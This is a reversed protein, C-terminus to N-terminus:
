QESIVLLCTQSDDETWAFLPTGQEADYFVQELPQLEKGEGLSAANAQEDYYVSYLRSRNQITYSSGDALSAGSFVNSPSNTATHYKYAAM